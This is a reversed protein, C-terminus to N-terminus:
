IKRVTLTTKPCEFVFEGVRVSGVGCTIMLRIIDSVQTKDVPYQECRCVLEVFHTRWNEYHM